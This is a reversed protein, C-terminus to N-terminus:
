TGPVEIPSTFLCRCRSHCAITRGCPITFLADNCRRQCAKQYPATLLADNCRSQCANDYSAILLADSCRRHRIMLHLSLAM